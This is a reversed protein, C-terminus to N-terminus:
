TTPTANPRPSGALLISPAESTFPSLTARMRATSPTTTTAIAPQAPDLLLPPLVSLDPGPSLPFADVDVVVTLAVVVVVEVVGDVPLVPPLVPLPSPGPEYVWVPSAANQVVCVHM